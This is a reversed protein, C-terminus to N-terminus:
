QLGSTLVKLECPAPRGGEAVCGAISLFGTGSAPPLLSSVMSQTNNEDSPYPASDSCHQPTRRAHHAYLAQLTCPLSSDRPQCPNYSNPPLSSLPLLPAWLSTPPRAFAGLGGHPSCLFSSSHGSAEPCSTQLSEGHGHGQYRHESPVAWPNEGRQNGPVSTSSSAM